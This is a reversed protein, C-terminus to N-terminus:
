AEADAFLQEFEHATFDGEGAFGIDTGGEGEVDGEFDGLMGCRLDGTLDLERSGGAVWKVKFVWIARFDM